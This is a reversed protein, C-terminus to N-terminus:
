KTYRSSTSYQTFHLTFHYPNAPTHTFNHILKLNYLICINWLFIIIWMFWVLQQQNGRQHYSVSNQNAQPTVVRLIKLDIYTWNMNFKANLSKDLLMTVTAEATRMVIMSTRLSDAPIMIVRRRQVNINIENDAGRSHGSWGQGLAM